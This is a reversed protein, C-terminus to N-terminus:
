VVHIACVFIFKIKANETYKELAKRIHYCKSLILLNTLVLENLLKHFLLLSEHIQEKCSYSLITKLFQPVERWSNGGGAAKSIIVISVKRTKHPNRM